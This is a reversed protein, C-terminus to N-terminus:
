ESVTVSLPFPHVELEAFVMEELVVDGITDMLPLVVSV